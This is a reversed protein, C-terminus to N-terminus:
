KVVPATYAYAQVSSTWNYDGAPEIKRWKDYQITDIVVEGVYYYKDINRDSNASSYINYLVPVLQQANNYEYRPGFLIDGITSSIEGLESGDSDISETLKIEIGQTTPLFWNLIAEEGAKYGADYIKQQNEAIKALKEAATIQHANAFFFEAVQGDIYQEADGFDMEAYEPHITAITEYSHQNTSPDTYTHVSLSRYEVTQTWNVSFDAGTELYGIGLPKTNAAQTFIALGIYTTGNSTFNLPAKVQEGVNLHINDVIHDDWKWKGKIYAM